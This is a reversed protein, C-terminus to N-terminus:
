SEGKTSALLDRAERLDRLQWDAPNSPAKEDLVAQLEQRAEAVRGLKLLTKGLGVRIATFQPDQELGKRFMEVSCIVEILLHCWFREICLWSRGKRVTSATSRTEAVCLAPLTALAGQTDHAAVSLCRGTIPANYVHMTSALKSLPVGYKKAITLEALLGGAHMHVIAAEIIKGSGTRTLVKAFGEAKGDCIAIREMHNDESWATQVRM